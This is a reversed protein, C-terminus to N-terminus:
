FPPKEPVLPDAQSVIPVVHEVVVAREVVVRPAPPTPLTFSTVIPSTEDIAGGCRKLQTPADPEDHDHCKCDEVSPCCCMVVNVVGATAFGSAQVLLALVVIM